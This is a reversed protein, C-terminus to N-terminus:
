RLLRGVAQTTFVQAYALSPGTGSSLPVGALSDGLVAAVKEGSGPGDPIVDPVFVAFFGGIMGGEKARVRDLHGHDSREYFSRGTGMLDLITDNHGDFIPILTGQSGDTM